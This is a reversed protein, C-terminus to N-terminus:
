DRWMEKLSLNERAVKPKRLALEDETLMQHSDVMQRAVPVAQVEVMTTGLNTNLTIRRIQMVQDWGDYHVAIQGLGTVGSASIRTLVGLVTFESFGPDFITSISSVASGSLVRQSMTRIAIEYRRGNSDITATEMHSYVAPAAMPDGVELSKIHANPDRAVEFSQNSYVTVAM